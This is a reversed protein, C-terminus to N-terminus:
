STLPVCAWDASDKAAVPREAPRSMLKDLVFKKSEPTRYFTSAPFKAAIHAGVTDAIPQLSDGYSKWGGYQAQNGNKLM